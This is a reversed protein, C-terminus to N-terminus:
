EWLGQGAPAEGRPSCGPCAVDRESVGCAPFPGSMGCPAGRTDWVGPCCGVSGVDRESVGCGVWVGWMGPPVDQPGWAAPSAGRSVWMGPSVDHPGWVAPSAGWMGPLLRSVECGVRSPAFRAAWIGPVGRLMRPAECAPRGVDRGSVGCGARVGWMGGRQTRRRGGGGATVRPRAGGAAARGPLEAACGGTPTCRSPAGRARPPPPPCTRPRRQQQRQLLVRLQLHLRLHVGGHRVCRRRWRWPARAGSARGSGAAGRPMM